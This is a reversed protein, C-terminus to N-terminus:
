SENVVEAEIVKEKENSEIKTKKKFM